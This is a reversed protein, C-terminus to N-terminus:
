RKPHGRKATRAIAIGDLLVFNEFISTLITIIIIVIAAM